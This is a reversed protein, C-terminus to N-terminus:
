SSGFQYLLQCSRTILRKIKTHYDALVAPSQERCSDIYQQLHYLTYWSVLVGQWPQRIVFWNSHTQNHRLVRVALARETALIVRGDVTCTLANEHSTASEFLLQAGQAIESILSAPRVGRICSAHLSRTLIAAIEAQLQERLKMDELSSVNSGLLLTWEKSSFLARSSDLLKIRNASLM